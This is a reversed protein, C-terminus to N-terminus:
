TGITFTYSCQPVQLLIECIFRHCCFRKSISKQRTEISFNCIPLNYKQNRHQSDPVQTKKLCIRFWIWIFRNSFWPDPDQTSVPFCSSSKKKCIQWTFYYMLYRIQMWHNKSTNVTFNKGDGFSQPPFKVKWFIDM